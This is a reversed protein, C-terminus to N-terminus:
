VADLVRVRRRHLLYGLVLFLAGGIGYSPILGLQVIYFLFNALLMAVFMLLAMNLGYKWKLRRAAMYPKPVPIPLVSEGFFVFAVYPMVLLSALYIM